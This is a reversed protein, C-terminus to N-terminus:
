LQEEDHEDDGEDSDDTIVAALGGAERIETGAYGFVGQEIGGKAIVEADVRIPSAGPLERHVAAKSTGVLVEGPQLDVSPQMNFTLMDGSEVRLALKLYELVQDQPTWMIEEWLDWELVAFTPLGKALIARIGKVVKFLGEPVHDPKAELNVATSTAGDWLAALHAKDSGEAYSTSVEKFFAEWFAPNSFDRYKRDLLGAWAWMDPEWTTKVAEIENSEPENPFGAYPAMAPKKGDKFKWGEYELHTLAETDTLGVYHREYDRGSWIQGEFSAPTVIDLVDGATVEELAAILQPSVRNGSRKAITALMQSVTAVSHRRDVAKLGPTQVGQPARAATLAASETSTTAPDITPEEDDVVAEAVDEAVAAVAEVLDDAANAKLPSAANAKLTPTIRTAMTGGTTTIPDDGCDAAVLQASPYAPRVVAAVATLVGGLLKGGRIIPNDIEVSAAARLGEAAEVLLDDGATTASIHFDAYIGDAREAILTARGVPRTFEHEVNLTLEAAKVPLTIIGPGDVRAAGLNTRGPEGFPLIRYSLTRADTNSATLSAALKLTTM